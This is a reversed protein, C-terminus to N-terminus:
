GEGELFSGVCSFQQWVLGGQPKASFILFRGRYNEVLFGFKTVSNVCVQDLLPCRVDVAFFRTYAWETFRPWNLQVYNRMINGLQFSPRPQQDHPHSYTAMPGPYEPTKTMSM